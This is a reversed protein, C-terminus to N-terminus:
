GSAGPWCHTPGFRFVPPMNEREEGKGKNLKQGVETTPCSKERGGRKWKQEEQTERKQKKKTGVEEERKRRVLFSRLLALSAKGSCEVVVKSVAKSILDLRGPGGPEM